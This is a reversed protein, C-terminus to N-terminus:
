KRSFSAVVPTSPDIVKSLLVLSALYPLGGMELNEAMTSGCLAGSEVSARLFAKIDDPSIERSLAQKITDKEWGQAQLVKRCQQAELHVVKNEFDKKSLRITKSVRFTKTNFKSSAIVSGNQLWLAPYHNESRPKHTSLRYNCSSFNLSKNMEASINEITEDYRTFAAKRKKMDKPRKGASIYDEETLYSAIALNAMVREDTEFSLKFPLKGLKYRGARGLAPAGNVAIFDGLINLTPNLILNFPAPAFLGACTAAVNGIAVNMSVLGSGVIMDKRSDSTYKKQLHALCALGQPPQATPQSYEESYDRSKKFRKKIRQAFRSFFGTKKNKSLDLVTGQPLPNLTVDRLKKSLIEGTLFFDNGNKFSDLFSPDCVSGTRLGDKLYNVIDKATVPPIDLGSTAKLLHIYTDNIDQAFQETAQTYRSIKRKESNSLLPQRALESLILPSESDFEALSQELSIHALFSAKKLLRYRGKGLRSSDRMLFKINKFGEMLFANGALSIPIGLFVGTGPVAIQLAVAAAIGGVGIALKGTTKGVEKVEEKLYLSHIRKYCAESSKSRAAIAQGGNLLNGLLFIITKFSLLKNIRM